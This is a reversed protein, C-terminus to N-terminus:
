SPTETAPVEETIEEESTAEEEVEVDTTEEEVIAPDDITEEEVGATDDTTEEEVATDTTEEESTEETPVNAVMETNKVVDAPTTATALENIDGEEDPAKEADDGALWWYTGAGALAAVVVPAAILAATGAIAGGGLMSGICALGSASAGAGFLAAISGLTGVTAGTYTGTKAKDCATKNKNKCGSFLYENMGYAGGYGAAIGAGAGTLATAAGAGILGAATAASAAAATGEVAAKAAIGAAVGTTVPEVAYSNVCSMSLVLTGAVWWKKMM